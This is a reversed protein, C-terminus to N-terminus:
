GRHERRIEGDDAAHGALAAVLGFRHSAHDWEMLWEGPWGNRCRELTVSWRTCRILGFEDLGAPAPAIRWRTSAASTGSALGPGSLLLPLAANRAALSLRRSKKFDLPRALTAAIAGPSQSRLAEEIAWLTEAEADTEVLILSAPDLGLSKLGHGHLRGHSTSQSAIFFVPRDKPVHFLLAALFGLAAPMDGAPGYRIEHFGERALGEGPVQEDIAPIGFSFFNGKSEERIIAPISRRLAAVIDDRSRLPSPPLIAPM